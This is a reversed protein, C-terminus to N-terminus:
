VRFGTMKHSGPSAFSQIPIQQPIEAKTTTKKAGAHGLRLAVVSKAYDKQCNEGM